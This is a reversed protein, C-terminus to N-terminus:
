PKTTQQAVQERSSGSSARGPTASAGKTPQWDRVTREHAHQAQLALEREAQRMANNTSWVSRGGQSRPAGATLELRRMKKKTLSPQAFAYDEGRTLLCWFLCALKRAAAVIAISHGRRAKIRAYFAAIPGPQRVTSWSAEVLAHRVSWSGQKSIHGHTAPGVGSQRARPDLGLYGTLKRRDPFRRIDGVAAMFTAAVIVNVGPVTMLRKVEPWPLAEAAIPQEVAAVESDRFEVQRIAPTSRRGSPPRSSSSPSGAGAM